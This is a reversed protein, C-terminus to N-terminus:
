KVKELISNIAFRDLMRKKRSEDSTQIKDVEQKIKIPNLKRLLKSKRKMVKALKKELSFDLDLAFRVARVIRLPDEVIRAKADGITRIVRNELDKQGEVLDIIVNNSDMYLGNITFDRRPFDENISKVYEIKTPHRSDKYHKEKRFTVIDYHLGENKLTMVGYKEFSGDLKYNSLVEKVESPTADTVCDYNTIPRFLLLDRVTGGVLYLSFGKKKFEAALLHYFDLGNM